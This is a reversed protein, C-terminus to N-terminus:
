GGFIQTLFLLIIGAYLGFILRFMDSKGALQGLMQGRMEALQVQVEGLQGQMQSIQKRIEALEVELKAIRENM